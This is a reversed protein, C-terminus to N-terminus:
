VPRPQIRRGRRWVAPRRGAVSPSMRPPKIRRLAAVWLHGVVHPSPAGRLHRPPAHYELRAFRRPGVYRPMSLSRQQLWEDDRRGQREQRHKATRTCRANAIFLPNACARGGWSASVAAAGVRRTRAGIRVRNTEPLRQRSRERHVQLKGCARPPPRNRSSRALLKDNKWRFPQPRASMPWHCLGSTRRM